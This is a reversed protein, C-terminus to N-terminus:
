SIIFCKRVRGAPLFTWGPFINGSCRWGGMIERREGSITGEFIVHLKVYCLLKQILGRDGIAQPDDAFLNTVGV